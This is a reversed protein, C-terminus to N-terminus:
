KFNRYWDTYTCYHTTYTFDRSTTTSVSATVYGNLVNPDMLQYFYNGSNSSYGCIAVSHVYEEYYDKIDAHIPINQDIYSKVSLYMMGINSTQVSVGLFSYARKIWTESGHPYEDGYADYLDYFLDDADPASSNTRHSGISSAVALWCIGKGTEDMTHNGVNDILITTGDIVSESRNIKTNDLKTLTLTESKKNKLINEIPKQLYNKGVDSGYICFVSNDSLLYVSNDLVFLSVSSKTELATTLLPLNCLQFSSAYEGDIYTACLAGICDTNKFLFYTRSNKDSNEEVSFGQTIFYNDKSLNYPINIELYTYIIEKAYSDVNVASFQKGEISNETAFTPMAMSVCVMLGLLVCIIKKM